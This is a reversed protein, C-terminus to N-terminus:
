ISTLTQSPDSAGRRLRGGADDRSGQSPAPAPAPAPPQTQPAVPTPKAATDTPEVPRVQPTDAQATKTAPLVQPDTGADGIIQKDAAPADVSGAAPPAVGPAPAAVPAVVVAAPAETIPTDAVVPTEVPAADVPVTDESAVDEPAVVVPTDAEAADADLAMDTILVVPQSVPSSPRAPATADAAEATLASADEDGEAMGGMMSALLGEFASADVAASGQPTAPTAPAIM